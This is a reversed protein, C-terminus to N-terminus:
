RPPMTPCTACKQLTDFPKAWVFEVEKGTLTSNEFLLSLMEGKEEMDGNQYLLPLNNALELVRSITLHSQLDVTDIRGLQEQVDEQQQRLTQDKVKYAEERVGHDIYLELLTDIKREIGRRTIHLSKRHAEQHDVREKNAKRVGDVIAEANDTDIQISHIKTFVSQEIEGEAVYQRKCGRAGTCNYYTYRNKKLQATITCGCVGCTLIGKFLFPKANYKFPKKNRNVFVKQVKDFLQKTIIPKYIHNYEDHTETAGVVGYYFPNKLIHDVTSSQVKKGRKSVLGRKEMEKCLTRISYRGTAYLEFMKKILHAHHDPVRNGKKNGDKKDVAYGLPPQGGVAEGRRMREENARKVADSISASFHENFVGQMQQQVRETANTNHDVVRGDSVFVLIVKQNKVMRDVHVVSPAQLNRTYRDNKDFVLYVNYEKALTEVESVVKEFNTRTEQYASERLEYVKHVPISKDACFKKCREVQAPLSNGQEGQEDTSVRAVIVAIKPM